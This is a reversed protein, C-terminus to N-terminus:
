LRGCCAAHLMARNAALLQLAAGAAPGAGPRVVLAEGCCATRGGAYAGAVANLASLGGVGFTTVVAALGKGRAYGDAAYSRLHSPHPPLLSPAADVAPLPLCSALKCQNARAEPM